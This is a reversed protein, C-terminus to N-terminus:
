VTLSWADLTGTDGPGNDGIRLTWTGSATESVNTATFAKPSPFATCPYGGSRQLSYTRGSPGVLTINLDQVCTHAAKVEVAVTRNAQGTTAAKVASTTLAFDRIAFDNDNRFTREGGPDPPTTGGGTVLTLGWKRLAENVPQFISQDDAGGPSCSSQGGSHLGVAKDGALWAGGSDGGM